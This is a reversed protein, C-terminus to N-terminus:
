GDLSQLQSCEERERDRKAQVIQAMNTVYHAAAPALISGSLLFLGGLLAGALAAGAVGWAGQPLHLVGFMVSTLALLLMAPLIPLLGGLLLSRFLLEEAAVVGIMVVATLALEQGTRPLMAEIITRSYYKEGSRAVIWRTGVYFTAAMLAGLLLGQALAQRWANLTWGFQDPPLGSLWGLGLCLAVLLLRIINESMLFLLNQNPQWVQLLKASRYTAFSVGSTLLLTLVVFIWYRTPM